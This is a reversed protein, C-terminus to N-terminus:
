AVGVAADTDVSGRALSDMVTEIVTTEDTIRIKPSVVLGAEHVGGRM